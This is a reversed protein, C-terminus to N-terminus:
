ADTCSFNRGVGFFSKSSSQSFCVSSLWQFSIRCFNTNAPFIPLLNKKFMGPTIIQSSRRFEVFVTRHHLNKFTFVPLPFIDLMFSFIQKNNHFFYFFIKANSTCTTPYCNERNKKARIMFNFQSTYTECFSSEKKVVM